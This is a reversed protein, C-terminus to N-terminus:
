EDAVSVFAIYLPPAPHNAYIWSTIIRINNYLFKAIEDVTIAWRAEYFSILLVQWCQLNQNLCNQLNINVSLSDAWFHHRSIASHSPLSCTVYLCEPYVPQCLRLMTTADYKWVYTTKTIELFQTHLSIEYAVHTM